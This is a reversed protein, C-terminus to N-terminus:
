QPAITITASGTVEDSTCYTKAHVTVTNTGVGKLDHFLAKCVNDPPPTCLTGIATIEDIRTSSIYGGSSNLGYKYTITSSGGPKIVPPDFSVIPAPPIGLVNFTKSNSTPCRKDSFTFACTLRAPGNEGTVFTITDTGQGAVITANEAGWTVTTGAKLPVALTAKKTTHFCIGFQEEETLNPIVIEPRQSFWITVSPQVIEAQCYKDHASAVTYTTTDQPDVARYIPWGQGTSTVGDSWVATLPLSGWRFDCILMSGNGYGDPSPHSVCDMSPYADPWNWVSVYVKAVEHIEFKGSVTGRCGNGDEFYPITLYQPSGLQYVTLDPIVRSISMENTVFDVGDSWQGKFPPKGTFEVTAKDRSCGTKTSITATAGFSGFAASGTSTGDCISDAFQTISYTGGANVLRSIHYASTTFPIGDSWKGNFPPTGDFNAEVTAGGCEIKGATVTATPHDCSLQKVIEVSLSDSATSKCPEKEGVASIGVTGSEGAHITVTPGVWTAPSGNTITWTVKTANGESRAEFTAGAVVSKPAHISFGPKACEEVQYNTATVVATCASAGDRGGGIARRRSVVPPASASATIVAEKAGAVSPTYTYSRAGPGLTLPEPFDTGSLTQTVPEGGTFSWRITMPELARGADTTMKVAFAEHLAIVGQGPTNCQGHSISVSVQANAADGLSLVVRPTGNGSIITGGVVTWTYTAGDIPSISASASGLRCGFLPLNVAVSQSCSVDLTRPVLRQQNGQTEIVMIGEPVIVRCSDVDDTDVVTGAAVSLARSSGSCEVMATADRETPNFIRFGASLPTALAAAIASLVLVRRATPM